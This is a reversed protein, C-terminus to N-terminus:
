VIHRMGEVMDFGVGQAYEGFPGLAAPEYGSGSTYTGFNTTVSASYPQRKYVDLHTYSVSTPSRHEEPASGM